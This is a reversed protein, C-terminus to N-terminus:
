RSSMSAPAIPSTVPSEARATAVRIVDAEHRPTVVVEAQKGALDEALAQSYWFYDRSRRRLTSPEVSYPTDGLDEIVAAVAENM